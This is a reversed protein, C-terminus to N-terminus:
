KREEKPNGVLEGASNRAPNLLGHIVCVWEDGHKSWYGYSRCIPCVPFDEFAM